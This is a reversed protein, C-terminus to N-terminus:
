RHPPYNRGRRCKSTDTADHQLKAILGELDKKIDRETMKMLKEAAETKSLKAIKELYQQPYRHLFRYEDFLCHLICAYIENEKVVQSKQFNRM